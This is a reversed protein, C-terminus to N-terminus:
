LRREFDKSDTFLHESLIVLGEEPGTIELKGDKVRLIGLGLLMVNALYEGISM